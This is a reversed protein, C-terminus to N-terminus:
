EEPTLSTSIRVRGAAEARKYAAYTDPGSFEAQLAPNRQYEARAAADPDGAALDATAAAPAAEGQPIRNAPDALQTVLRRLAADRDLREPEAGEEGASLEVVAEAPDRLVAAITDALHPALHHDRVVGAAFDAVEAARARAREAEIEARAAAIAAREAEIEARADAIEARAAALDVTDAEPAAPTATTPDPMASETEPHDRSAPAGLEIIEIPDTEAPDDGGALHVPALGKVAPEAAGL